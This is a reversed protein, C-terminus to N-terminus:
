GAPSEGRRRRRYIQSLLLGFLLGIGLSLFIVWILSVRATAFVFHVDIQKNNEVVFAVLYALLLALGVLRLWLKAQWTEQLEKTDLRRRLRM